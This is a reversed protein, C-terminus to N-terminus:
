GDVEKEVGQITVSATHGSQTLTSEMSAIYGQTVTGWPNTSSVKQGVMHGLVVVDQTLTNRLQQAEYLRQLVQGANGTHILTVERVTAVNGMEAATAMPNRKEYVTETHVYTKGTLTVNGQSSIVVWNVGSSVITGGTIQYDYHPEQFTFLVGSGQVEEEQLLTQREESPVYSHAYVEVKAVRSDVSIRAGPFIESEDFRGTVTEGLPALRLTGDGMSTVMGGIVFAVQQLAKRRTSIPLYGSIKEGAFAADVSFPFTGLIDGLMEELPYNQYMGGLHRDELLGVASQCSFEYLNKSQRSVETLYQSAILVGDRSLEMRQNKQPALDYHNRDRVQIKMTDVPLECMSPDTEKLVTAKLLEGSGFVIVHGIQIKQLKAFQEPLNTSLLTISIRDFSEVTRTLTWQANSPEAQVQALLTQGNYWCVQIKGCWQGSSPWFTFTLGTATYPQPFTIDIQPPQQFIGNEDSVSESWWGVDAPADALVARTGDLVWGGVELTAWPTDAAGSTLGEPKSFSQGYQGSVQAAQQAGEPVDIYRLTLSM